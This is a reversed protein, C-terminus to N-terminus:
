EICFSVTFDDTVQNAKGWASMVFVDNVAIVVVHDVGKAKLKDKNDLFGPVHRESCTPTFAGPVAILM